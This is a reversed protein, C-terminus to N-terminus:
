RKRSGKKEYTFTTRGSKNMLASLGDNMEKKYKRNQETLERIKDRFASIVENSIKESSSLEANKMESEHLRQHLDAIQTLLANKETQDMSM